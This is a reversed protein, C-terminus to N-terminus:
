PPHHPRFRSKTMKNGVHLSLTNSHVRLPMPIFVNWDCTHILLLAQYATLTGRLCQTHTSLQEARYSEKPGWPSEETWPIRWALINSHIAMEKELPDEQGMSWVQTAQTAPLNKVVSGGLFCRPCCVYTIVMSKSFTSSREVDGHRILRYYVLPANTILNSSSLEPFCHVM